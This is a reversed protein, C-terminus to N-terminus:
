LEIASEGVKVQLKDTVKNYCVFFGADDLRDGVSWDIRSALMPLYEQRLVEKLERYLKGYHKKVHLTLVAPSMVKPYLKMEDQLLTLHRIKQSVVDFEMEFSAKSDIITGCFVTQVPEDWLVPRSALVRQTALIHHQVNSM